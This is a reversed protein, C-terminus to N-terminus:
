YHGLIFNNQLPSVLRMLIPRLRNVLIKSVLKYVVNCLSIPCFDKFTTPHDIKPILVLLTETAKPNIRGTEFAMAVFRWVDEGVENWYNKFFILQFGDPGQAKYSKMSQLVRFVEEKLVPTELSTCEEGSLSIPCPPM